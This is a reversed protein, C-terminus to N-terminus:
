NEWRTTNGEPQIGNDKGEDHMIAIVRKLTCFPVRKGQAYLM